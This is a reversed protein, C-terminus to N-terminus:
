WRSFSSNRLTILSLGYMVALFLVSVMMAMPIEVDAAGCFGYRVGNVMYLLPNLQALKRWLPHLHEISFFVGGLYLLPLLVFSTVASLQDFSKAWFAVAIGMQAFALGGITLFFLAAWPHIISMGHGETLFMFITGVLFTIVGVVYGRFVGGLSMAWIIQQDSLLTIKYDELDGTFKSSVISSSSNQFANNLCGMMVLGPILFSLYSLGKTEGLQSGISVGFILLYLTSNILPTVVTQMIVKQFRKIERYFLTM